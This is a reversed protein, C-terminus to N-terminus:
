MKRRSGDDEVAKDADVVVDGVKIKVGELSKLGGGRSKKVEGSMMGGGWRLSKTTQRVATNKKIIIKPSIMMKQRFNQFNTFTHTHPPLSDDNIQNFTM